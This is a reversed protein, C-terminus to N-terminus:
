QCRLEVLIVEPRNNFRIPFSSNGIGRSVIMDTQGQSYLGSDYKPLIGQGPAFLGGIWPLRFQGGHAHGSLVLDYGAKVYESFDEPYHSLLLRYGNFDLLTGIDEADSWGRGVLVISDGGSQLVVNEDLLITVGLATLGEALGRFLTEELNNEHNGPVYYCPAIKVAEAAFALAKPTDTHKADVLDGTICIIDPEAEKLCDITEEWLDSNHLDSVHAIRYGDFGAPLDEEAVSITTLGVTMNSWLMWLLSALLVAALIIWIYKKKM